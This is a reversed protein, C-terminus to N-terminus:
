RAVLSVTYAGRGTVGFSNAYIFYKGPSLKTRIRANSGENGGDDDMAIRRGGADTLVLFPDFATSKLDIQVSIPQTVTVLYVDAFSGDDLRCDTSALFGDVSQGLGLPLSQTCPETAGTGSATLTLLYAGTARPVYSTALIVYDGPALPARIRANGSGGDDDDQAVVSGDARELILYSNFASSTMDLQVNRDAGPAVTFAYVDVYTGGALQCDSTALGATQTDGITITTM